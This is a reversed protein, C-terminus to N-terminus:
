RRICTMELKGWRTRLRETVFRDTILALIEDPRSLWNEYTPREHATMAAFADVKHWARRAPAWESVVHVATLFPTRWPEVVLFRGGPTLIRCVQDLTRILDDPLIRLHHLGGQVAVIDACEDPLPVARCDGCALYGPGDYEKLLRHSYDVGILRSYGLSAWSHLGNGRGCFIEVVRQSRAWERAGLRHLRRTFKAIEEEPTEFRQYAAEWAL